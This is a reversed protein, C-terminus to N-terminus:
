FDIQTARSSCRADDSLWFRVASHLYTKHIPGATRGKNLLM